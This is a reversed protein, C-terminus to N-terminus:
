RTDTWVRGYQLAKVNDIIAMFSGYWIPPDVHKPWRNPDGLASIVLQLVRMEDPRVFNRKFRNMLKQLMRNLFEPSGLYPTAGNENLPMDLLWSRCYLAMGSPMIAFLVGKDIHFGVAFNLAAANFASLTESEHETAGFLVSHGDKLIVTHESHHSFARSASWISWDTVYGQYNDARTAARQFPSPSLERTIKDGSYRRNHSLVPDDPEVIRVDIGLGNQASPNATLTVLLWNPDILQALGYGRTVPGSISSGPVTYIEGSVTSSKIHRLKVATVSPDNTDNEMDYIELGSVPILLKLQKASLDIDVPIPYCLAFLEAGDLGSASRLLRVFHFNQSHEGIKSMPYVHFRPEWSLTYIKKSYQPKISSLDREEYLHIKGDNSLTICEDFPPRRFNLGPLVAAIGAFWHIHEPEVIDIPLDYRYLHDYVYRAAALISPNYRGFWVSRYGEIHSHVTNETYVHFVSLPVLPRGPISAAEDLAGYSNSGFGNLVIYMGLKDDAERRMTVLATSSRIADPLTTPWGSPIFDTYNVYSTRANMEGYFQHKLVTRVLGKMHDGKSSHLQLSVLPLIGHTFLTHRIRGLTYDSSSAAEAVILKM